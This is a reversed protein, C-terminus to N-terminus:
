LNNELLNEIYKKLTPPPFDFRDSVQNGGRLCTLFNTLMVSIFYFDGPNNLELKWYNSNGLNQFLNTVRGFINEISVRAISM